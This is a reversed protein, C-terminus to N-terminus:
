VQTCTKRALIYNSTTRKFSQATDRFKDFNLSRFSGGLYTFCLFLQEFWKLFPTFLMAFVFPSVSPCVPPNYNYNKFVQYGLRKEFNMKTTQLTLSMNTEYYATIKDNVLLKELKM